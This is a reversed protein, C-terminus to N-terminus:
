IHGFCFLTLNRSINFDHYSQQLIYAVTPNTTNTVVVVLVVVVVVMVMVLVMVGVVVVVVVVVVVLVAMGDGGGVESNSLNQLLKLIELFSVKNQKPWIETLNQEFEIIKSM